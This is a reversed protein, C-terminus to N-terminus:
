PVRKLPTFMPVTDVGSEKMFGKVFRRPKQTLFRQEMKIIEEDYKNKYVTALPGNDHKNLIDMLSAYALLLHHSQPLEPTDTDEVLRAPRYIYRVSINFDESQRPYLRIQQAYGEPYKYRQNDLVFTGNTFSALTFDINVAASIKTDILTGVEYVGDFEPTESDNLIYIRRSFGHKALSPPTVTLRQTDSLSLTDTFPSLGSELEFDQGRKDNLVYSMAVRVTRAGQGASTASATVAPPHSPSTISVSDQMVWYNPINVEDLPLNYYEDEYRTLPVYRGVASPAITMSRRGVQLISVCDQPLKIFRQKFRISVNTFTAINDKIYFTTPTGADIYLVEYEVENIEVINGEIWTPVATTATVITALLAPNYVGSATFTADTKIPIEVEKQAFTFAKISFLMRYHQNIIDDIQASYQVNSSPDYDLINAIYERIDKLNM